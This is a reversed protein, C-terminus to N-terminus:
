PKLQKFFRSAGGPVKLEPRLHHDDAVSPMQYSAGSAGGSTSQNINGRCHLVGSQADLGAVPCGEACTWATVTETGDPDSYGANPLPPPSTEGNRDVWGIRGNERVAVGSRVKKFGDQVCEELHQLVLNAPWRGGTPPVSPAGKTYTNPRYGARANAENLRDMGSPQNSGGITGIRTAEINLAGTGWRLVNAAVTPESCPKRLVHICKM